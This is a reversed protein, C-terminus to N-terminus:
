ADSADGDAEKAKENLANDINTEEDKEEQRARREEAKKEKDVLRYNIGMGVFLFISAIVLVIGCAQYTYKYDGYDDNLK